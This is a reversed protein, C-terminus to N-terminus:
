PSPIRHGKLLQNKRMANRKAEKTKKKIEELKQQKKVPDSVFDPKQIHYHCELNLRHCNSCSPKEESCKKKRLRCIWCGNRSRTGSLAKKSEANSYSGEHKSKVSLVDDSSTSTEDLSPSRVKRSQPASKKNTENKIKQKRKSSTDLTVEKSTVRKGSKNWTVGRNLPIELDASYSRKRSIPHESSRTEVSNDADDFIKQRNHIKIVPRQLNKGLFLNSSSSPRNKVSHTEETQDSKLNESNRNNSVNQNNGTSFKFPSSRMNSLVAAASGMDEDVKATPPISSATVPRSNNLLRFRVEDLKSNIFKPPPPPFLSENDNSLTKDLKIELVTGVSNRVKRPETDLAAVETISEKITNIHPLEIKHNQVENIKHQGPLRETTIPLVHMGIQNYDQRSSRLNSSSSFSLASVTPQSSLINGSEQFGINNSKSSPIVVKDSERSSTDERFGKTNLVSYMEDNNETGPWPGINIKKEHNDSSKIESMSRTNDIMFKEPAFGQSSTIDSNKNKAENNLVNSNSDHEEEQKTEEAEEAEERKEEMKPKGKLIDDKTSHSSPKPVTASKEFDKNKGSLKNEKPPVCGGDNYNLITSSSTYDKNETTIRNDEFSNQLNNTTYNPEMQKNTLKNNQFEPSSGPSEVPTNNPASTPNKISLFPNDDYSTRTSEIIKEKPKNYKYDTNVDSSNSYMKNTEVINLTPIKHLSNHAM